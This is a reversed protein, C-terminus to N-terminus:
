LKLAADSLHAKFYDREALNITKGEASRPPHNRTFNVMDGNKDVISVVSLQPIGSKRSQILDFIERTGMKERLQAVTSLRADVVRETVSRLVLDVALLSQEVQFAIAKSTTEQEVRSQELYNARQMYSYGTLLALIVAIIVLAVRYGKLSM